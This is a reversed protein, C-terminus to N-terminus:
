RYGVDDYYKVRAPKNDGRNTIAEALPDETGDKEADNEVSRRLRRQEYGESRILSLASPARPVHLQYPEAMITMDSENGHADVATVGITLPVGALAIEDPLDVETAKGVEVCRSDYDPAGERSWYIKYGTVAESESAKWCLKYKRFKAM